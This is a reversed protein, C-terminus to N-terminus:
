LGQHEMKKESNLIVGSAPHYRQGREAGIDCLEETSSSRGLHAEAMTKLNKEVVEHIICIHVCKIRTFLKAEESPSHDIDCQAILGM